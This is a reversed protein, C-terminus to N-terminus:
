IDEPSLVLMARAMVGRTWSFIHSVNLQILLPARHGSAAAVFSGEEFSFPM